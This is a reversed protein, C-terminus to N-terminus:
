WLQLGSPRKNESDTIKKWNLNNPYITSFPPTVDIKIKKLYSTLKNTDSFALVSDIRNKEIHYYTEVYYNHFQFLKVLYVGKIKHDLFVGNTSLEILKNHTALELFHTQNM